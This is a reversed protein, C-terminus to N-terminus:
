TSVFLEQLKNALVELQEMAKKTERIGTQVQMSIENISYITSTMQETASKQEQTSIGIEKASRTTQEISLIINQLAEGAKSALITGQDVKQAANETEKVTNSIFTQIEEILIKIQKTADVTKEALRRMETAVVNFRRGNEGAGSAEIAANLALLNIQSSIDSIIETIGGIQESHERLMIMRKAVLQVREKITRMGEMSDNVIEFGERSIIQTKEAVHVVRESNEAILAATAAMEEAVVTTENISTGQQTISEVQSQTTALIETSASNLQQIVTTVKQEIELERSINKLIAIGGVSKGNADSIPSFSGTINFQKGLKDTIQFYTNLLPQGEKQIQELYEKTNNFVIECDEGLAEEDSWGSLIMAALNFYTIKMDNDVTFMPDSISSIINENREISDRLRRMMTNFARVLIGIEDKSHSHFTIQMDETHEKAIDDMAAALKSLLGSVFGSLLWITVSIILLLIFRNVILGITLINLTKDIVSQLFAIRFVGWHRGKVYVPYSVDYLKEGTDRKYQQRLPKNLDTNQATTLGIEDDFIRKSRYILPDNSFKDSYISNHAPVYGNKDVLVAFEAKAADMIEDELPRIINELYKDWPTHYYKIKNEGDSCLLEMFEEYDYDFFENENLEGSDISHELVVQMMKAGIRTLADAKTLLNEKSHKRQQRVNCTTSLVFILIIFSIFPLIFKIQLGSIFSIRKM